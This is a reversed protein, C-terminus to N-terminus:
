RNCYLMSPVICSCPRRNRHSVRSYVPSPWGIWGKNISRSSRYRGRVGVWPNEEWVTTSCLSWWVTSRRRVLNILKRDFYKMHSICKGTGRQVHHVVISRTQEWRGSAHPRVRGPRDPESCLDSTTSGIRNGLLMGYSLTQM